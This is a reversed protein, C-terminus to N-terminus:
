PPQEKDCDIMAFHMIPEKNKCQFGQDKTSTKVVEILMKDIHYNVLRDYKEYSDCLVATIINDRRLM